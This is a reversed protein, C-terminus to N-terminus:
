YLKGGTIRKERVEIKKYPTKYDPQYILMEILRDNSDYIYERKGYYAHHVTGKELNLKYEEISTITTDIEQIINGGEYFYRTIRQLDEGKVFYDKRVKKGTMDYIITDFYEIWKEVNENFERVNKKILEGSNNYKYGITTFPAESGVIEKVLHISDYEYRIRTITDEGMIYKIKKNILLDNEGYNYFVQIPIECTRICYMEKMLKGSDDFEYFHRNNFNIRQNKADFGKHYKSESEKEYNGDKYKYITKIYEIRYDEQEFFKQQWEYENPTSCGFLIFISIILFLSNYIKTIM